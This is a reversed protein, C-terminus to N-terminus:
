KCLELGYRSSSGRRRFVAFALGTLAIAILVISAPEPVPDVSGGGSKFKELLAQVDGNTVAGSHNIDGITLVNSDSLGNMTKYHNVDTLATLMAPIDAANVHGDLNFDGPLPEPVTAQRLQNLYLDGYGTYSYGQTLAHTGSDDNSTPAAVITPEIATDEHWENFTSVMLINNATPDLTPLVAQNLEASFLSGEAAGPIDTLYRPAAPLTSGAGRNNFGPSAAPIWGVHVSQAIQLASQFQSTLANVGATTSGNGQLASGYVDFDTISDWLAARQANNQGPFVDDGVIYPNVGYQSQITQRM